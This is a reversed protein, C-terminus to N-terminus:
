PEALCSTINGAWFGFGIIFYTAFGIFFGVMKEITSNYLNASRTTGADIMLLGAVVTLAGVTGSAYVLNQVLQTLTVQGAFFATTTGEM